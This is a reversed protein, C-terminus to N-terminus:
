PRCASSSEAIKSVTALSGHPWGSADAHVEQVGLDRTIGFIVLLDVVASRNDATM